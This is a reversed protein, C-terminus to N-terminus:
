LQFFEMASGGLGHAIFVPHAAGPKLLVLSPLRPTLAQQLLAGLGAITPAHYITVPPLERGFSNAIENFMEVAISSDGGLDFFNDDAMIPAHQLLKEWIITLRAIISSVVNGAATAATQPAPTSLKAM